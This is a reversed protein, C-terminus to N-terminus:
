QPSAADPPFTEAKKIMEEIIALCQIRTTKKTLQKAANFVANRSHRMNTSIELMLGRRITKLRFLEIANPTDIVNM